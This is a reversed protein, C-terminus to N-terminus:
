KRIKRVNEYLLAEEKLFKRRVLGIRLVVFFFILFSFVQIIDENQIFRDNYRNYFIFGAQEHLCSGVPHNDSLNSYTKVQLQLWLRIKDMRWHIVFKLGKSRNPILVSLLLRYLPYMWIAQKLKFYLLEPSRTTRSFYTCYVGVFHNWWVDM